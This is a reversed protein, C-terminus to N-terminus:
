REEGERKDGNHCCSKRIVATRGNCASTRRCITVRRRGDGETRRVGIKKRTKQSIKAVEKPVRRLLVKGQEVEDRVDSRMDRMDSGRECAEKVFKLYEIYENWLTKERDESASMINWAGCVECRDTGIVFYEGMCYAIRPANGCGPCIAIAKDM